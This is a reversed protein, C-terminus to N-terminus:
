NEFFFKFTVGEPYVKMVVLPITINCDGIRIGWKKISKM